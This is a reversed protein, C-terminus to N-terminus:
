SLKSQLVFVVAKNTVFFEKLFFRKLKLIWMRDFHVKLARLTPWSEHNRFFHYIPRFQTEPNDSWLDNKM